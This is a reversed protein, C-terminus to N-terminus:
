GAELAKVKVSLEKIANLMHWFIDDTNLTKIGTSATLVSSALVEEAEQAILGIQVGTKDVVASKAVDALEPNDAVIEDKTKYEFNKVQFKDIISLGFDYNVINKKIRQDSTTEFSSANKENFTGQDGGLFCTDHGKGALGAGIVIEDSQSNSSCDNARGIYVCRSGTAHTNGANDGIYVNDVGTTCNDGARFGFGVNESGTTVKDLAEAGM